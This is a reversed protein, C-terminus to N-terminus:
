SQGWGAPMEALDPQLGGEEIEGGGPLRARGADVMVGSELAQVKSKGYTRGGVIRARGHVQLCGAFLEAASATGGDVQVVIPWPYADGRARYTLADGDCDEVTAVVSGEPLLDRLVEVASLVEGGPNGRLDIVLRTLGARELDGIASHVAAPVARSFVHIVIRGVGPAVLSAEVAGDAYMSAGVDKAAVAYAYLITPAGPVLVAGIPNNMLNGTTMSTLTVAPMGQLLINPVGMSFMGAQMFLPNAVGANDGMTLPIVSAMNLAPMMMNLITPATPVAMAHMAMNPYPIPLPAPVAPTLCVDPFGMNM